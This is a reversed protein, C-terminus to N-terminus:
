MPNRSNCNVVKDKPNLISTPDKGSVAFFLFYIRRTVYDWEKSKKKVEELSVCNNQHPQEPLFFGRSEPYASRHNHKVCSCFLASFIFHTFKEELVSRCPSNTSCFDGCECQENMKQIWQIVVTMLLALGYWSPSTGNIQKSNLSALWKQLRSWWIFMQHFCLEAEIDQTLNLRAVYLLASAIDNYIGKFDFLAM